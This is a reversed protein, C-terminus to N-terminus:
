IGQAQKLYDIGEWFTNRAQINRVISVFGYVGALGVFGYVVNLVDKVMKQEPKIWWNAYGNPIMFNWIAVVGWVLGGTILLMLSVKNLNNLM